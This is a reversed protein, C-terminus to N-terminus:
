VVGLKLKEIVELCHKCKHGTSKGNSDHSRYIWDKCTCTWRNKNYNTINYIDGKSGIIQYVMPKFKMNKENNM